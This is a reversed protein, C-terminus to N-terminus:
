EEGFAVKVAKIGFTMTRGMAIGAMLCPYNNVFFGGSCDGTVFLGEIPESSDDVAQAKENILIGQETTLLCAGMWFGRFPPKEIKSLHWPLKGFDEDEGKEVLENYRAVTALFTEKAEGAFGLKDALEELTDALFANGKEVQDDYMREAMEIGNRTQASCGITHFVQVDERWNDDFISAYVHGPQYYSAYSMQDYTGSECAFREGKRNVKLFPQTGINFQGETAPFVKDGTSTVVFGADIGPAIIGRDFLMPAPEAQMAAGIWKAAKIGDGTDGPQSNDYTTVATGMPDLAEMMAANRPYGGTALLVGNKANVRLFSGDEKKAIVGTVRGAENQELKVMPTCFLIQNGGEEILQQFMDLRDLKSRWYHEEAPFFYGSKEPNPWHSEDGATVDLIAEPDYKAYCEKIFKHMDASENFWTQFTKLNTKGSSFKKLERRMAARDMPAEGAALMDESDCAGYWGRRRAHTTNKEIVLVNYGKSTAYAAAALGGNGAGVVLFDTELTEAIDAEAIEPATGLWDAPGAEEGEATGIVEVPIEGKAQAICKAAAEMVANSTLSAGSVGDIEASQNQMLANRLEEAAAQGISATEASVDLVVDTIADESFTMTVIVTGIGTATASYTGPTYLGAARVSDHFGLSALALGAAGAVSGKLFDRRSLEKNM